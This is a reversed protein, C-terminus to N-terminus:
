YFWKLFAVLPYLCKLLTQNFFQLDVVGLWEAECKSLNSLHVYCELWLNVVFHYSHGENFNGGLDETQKTM